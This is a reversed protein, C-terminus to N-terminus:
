INKTKIINKQICEFIIIKQRFLQHFVNIERSNNFLNLLNKAIVVYLLQYRWM